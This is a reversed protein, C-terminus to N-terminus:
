MDLRRTLRGRPPGGPRVWDARHTVVNPHGAAQRKPAVISSWRIVRICTPMHPPSPAREKRACTHRRYAFWEYLCISNVIEFKREFSSSPSLRRSTVSEMLSCSPVGLLGPKPNADFASQFRAPRHCWCQDLPDPCFSGSSVSGNSNFTFVFLFNRCLRIYAELGWVRWVDWTWRSWVGLSGKGNM